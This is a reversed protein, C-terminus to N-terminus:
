RIEIVAKENEYDVTIKIGFLYYYDAITLRCVDEQLVNDIRGETIFIEGNKYVTFNSKDYAKGKTRRITIRDDGKEIRLKDDTISNFTYGALECLTRLQKFEMKEYLPVSDEINYSWDWYEREMFAVRKGDAYLPIKEDNDCNDKGSFRKEAIHIFDEKDTVPPIHETCFRLRGLEAGNEKVLYIAPTISMNFFDDNDIIGYYCLVAKENQVVSFALETIPRIDEYDSVTVYFGAHHEEDMGITNFYKFDFESEELPAYLEPQSILKQVCYDDTVVWSNVVGYRLFHYVHFKLGNEDMYIDVIDDANGAGYTTSLSEVREDLYNREERPYEKSSVLTFTQHYRNELYEIVEEENMDKRCGTFMFTMICLVVLVFRKM